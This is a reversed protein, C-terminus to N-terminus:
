GRHSHKAADDRGMSLVHQLHPVIELPDLVVDVAGTAIAAAPMAPAEATSPAQALTHGGEARIRKMGAAGDENAGTLIIGICREHFVRAMSEFTVDISPRSFHVPATVNLSFSRNSEVLLHYNAPAIYICGPVIAEKDEVDVVPLATLRGLIYQLATGSNPHQHQVIVVPLPWDQPLQRVIQVLMEVGGWSAGIAVIDYPLRRSRVARRAAM